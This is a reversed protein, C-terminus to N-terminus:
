KPSHDPPGAAVRAKEAWAKRAKYKAKRQEKTPSPIPPGKRTRGRGEKFKRAMRKTKAATTTDKSQTKAACGCKVGEVRGNDLETRGGLAHPVPYHGAVWPGKVKTGCVDCKGKARMFLKARQMPTFCRRPDLEVPENSLPALRATM